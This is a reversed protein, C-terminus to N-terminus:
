KLDEIVSMRLLDLDDTEEVFAAYSNIPNKKSFYNVVLQPKVWGTKRQGIYEPLSSYLRQFERGMIGLELQNRHIYRSLHLLQSESEILVAKYVGEFLGGVRKLKRNFYGTYRTMLSNLFRDMSNIKTQQILFHFHNPMLSYCILKIEESFNNLRLLKLIKDKEKYGLSEDSLKQYLEKENKPELYEKLYKLFVNYDQTDTFIIRKEVGRNYIHYFGNELYIKRSNRAPM